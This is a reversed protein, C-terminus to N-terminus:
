PRLPIVGDQVPAAARADEEELARLVSATDTFVAYDDDNASVHALLEERQQGHVRGELLASLQEDDKNPEKVPMRRGHVYGKLNPRAPTSFTGLRVDSTRRTM